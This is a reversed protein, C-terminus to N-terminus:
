KYVNGRFDVVDVFLIKSETNVRFIVRIKGKRIRYHGAWDGKLKKVSINVNLGTLKRVFDRLADRIEEEVGQEGIFNDARKSYEVTWSM